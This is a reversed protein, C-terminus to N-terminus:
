STATWIWLGIVVSAYVAWFSLRGMCRVRVQAEDLRVERLSLVLPLTLLALFQLTQVHVTM